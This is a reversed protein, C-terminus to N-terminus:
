QKVIPRAAANPPSGLVSDTTSAPAGGLSAWQRLWAPTPSQQRGQQSDNQGGSSSGGQSSQRGGGRQDPSQQSSGSSHGGASTQGAAPLWTQTQYHEAALRSSLEPLNEQLGRTLTSDSARVSVSLGGAHEVLRLDVRQDSLGGLQLQLTRVPAAVGTPDELDTEAIPAAASVSGTPEAKENSLPAPSSSPASWPASNAAELSLGLTSTQRSRVAGSNAVLLAGVPLGAPDALGSSSPSAPDSNMNGAPSAPAAPIPASQAVGAAVATPKQAADSRNGTPTIHLAFAAGPLPNLVAPVGSKEVVANAGGMQQSVPRGETAVSHAAAQNAVATQHQSVTRGAMAVVPVPAAAEASATTGCTQPRRPEEGKKEAKTSGPKANLASVPGSSAPSASPASANAPIASVQGAFGPPIKALSDDTTQTSIAGGSPLPSVNQLSGSPQQSVTGNGVGAASVPAASASASQTTQDSAPESNSPKTAESSSPKSRAQAPGRSDDAPKERTTNTTSSTWNGGGNAGRSNADTVSPDASVSQPQAAAHAFINQFSDESANPETAAAGAPLGSLPM